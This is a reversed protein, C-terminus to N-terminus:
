HGQILKNKDIQELITSRPFFNYHRYFNFVSENGEGVVLIKRKAPLSDLWSLARRVLEDGIGSGRFEKEVYISDIEGQEEANLSVVCYGIYEGSGLDKALDLRLAGDRSKESLQKKRTEFTVSAFHEKFRTSVDKHHQILKEWLPKIVDLNESNISLYEIRERGASPRSLM